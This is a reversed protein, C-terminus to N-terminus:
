WARAAAWEEAVYVDSGLMRDGRKTDSRLRFHEEDDEHDDGDRDVKEAATEV